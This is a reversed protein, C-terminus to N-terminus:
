QRIHPEIAAEMYLARRYDSPSQCMVRKFYSLFHGYDCFGVMNSIELLSDNTYAIRECAASIRLKALYEYITQGTNEKFLRCLYNRSYSFEQALTDLSFRSDLHTRLYKKISGVTQQQRIAETSLGRFTRCLLETFSAQLIIGYGERKQQYETNMNSLIAEINNRERQDQKLYLFSRNGNLFEIFFHLREGSDQFNHENFISHGLYEVDILMNYSDLETGMAIYRHPVNKSVIIVSNNSISTTLDGITYEGSARMFYMLELAKHSHMYPLVDCVENKHCINIFINRPTDIQYEDLPSM